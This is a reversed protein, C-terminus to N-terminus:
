GGASVYLSRVDTILKLPRIGEESWAHLYYVSMCALFAAM